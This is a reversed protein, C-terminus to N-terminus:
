PEHLHCLTSGVPRHARGLIRMGHTVRCARKIHLPIPYVPVVVHLATEDPIPHVLGKRLIISVSFEHVPCIAAIEPLIHRAVAIEYAVSDHSRVTVRMRSKRLHLM